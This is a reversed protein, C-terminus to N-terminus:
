AIREASVAIPVGRSISDFAPSFTPGLSILEQLQEDTVNAKIRLKLRIARYGNRVSPDLGLFGRLDMDGELFSELQEIAIGRAAAHYVISTTVCSALAHLLHELPNAATDNGLLVDPEDATLQLETKHSLLQDQGCFLKVKSRNEAGDIWENAIQFRFLGLKPFKKVAEVTDRLRAIDVGNATTKIDTEM